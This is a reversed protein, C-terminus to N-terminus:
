THELVLPAPAEDAASRQPQRLLRLSNLTVLLSSGAMGLAALWPEVLGCAALPLATLNYAIAWGLNQRIVRRTRRAINIAADLGNLSAGTLLLDSARHALAAGEAFSVSVDAGALVPADNIGDGVMLVVRGQSQLGRVLALKDEASQRARSTKIGLRQAVSAVRAPADGSALHIALGRARLAAITTACDRRLSESWEFRATADKGNGLWLAGDDAGATAFDARGLRWYRGDILGEVGVGAILRRESAAHTSPTGAFAQALPHSGGQELASAINLAKASEIGGFTQVRGLVPRSETLTGTKDFVVDTIQALRELAHESLALVGAQALASHASSIAAPIALALACPCSIVLTALTIQLARAPDIVSWVCAVVIGALLLAAVFYSAVRDALRAIPPRQSQAREVLQAIQSLRTASGIQDVRVRIPQNRCISGAYVAAGSLREVARSEGTLLTEDLQAITDLLCGDAPLVEGAAVRVVDGAQLEALPIAQSSGDSGERQVFAPRARALADIRAHGIARARQELMRAALLLFVFMVAADFWVHPGGRLTEISSAGWALLSSGAILVDMGVRRARLETWAGLLFPWGAYFVVPTSVLLTIWRFFDRTALDMTQNVDLYLAEAFMMAQMSGLAAVGLRILTRQRTRRREVEQTAGSALFPRYGLRILAGLIRSLPAHTPDWALRIRGTVANASCEIVGPERALARDILWACAACRMGDSLLTIERGGPIPHAHEALLETRDWIALDQLQSQVRPAPQSRLDYYAALDASRIWEAAAACGDCCFAGRADAALSEGCHKCDTM